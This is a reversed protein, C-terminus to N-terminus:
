QFISVYDQIPFTICMFNFPNTIANNGVGLILALNSTRVTSNSFIRTNQSIIGYQNTFKSVPMAYCRLLEADKASILAKKYFTQKRYNM